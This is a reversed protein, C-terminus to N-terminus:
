RTQGQHSATLRMPRYYVPRGTRRIPYRSVRNWRASPPGLWAPHLMAIRTNATKSAIIRPNAAWRALMQMTRVMASIMLARVPLISTLTPFDTSQTHATVIGIKKTDIHWIKTKPLKEKEAELTRLRGSYGDTVKTVQEDIKQDEDDPNLKEELHFISNLAALSSILGLTAVWWLLNNQSSFFYLIVTIVLFYILIFWLNLHISFKRM